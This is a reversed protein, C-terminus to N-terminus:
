RRRQQDARRGYHPGLVLLQPSQEGVAEVLEVLPFDLLMFSTKRRKRSQAVGEIM